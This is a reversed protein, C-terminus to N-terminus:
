MMVSIGINVQEVDPGTGKRFISQPYYSASIAFSRYGLNVTYGYHFNRLDINSRKKFKGKYEPHSSKVKTHAGMRLGGVVGGNVFFKGERGFRFEALLPINIYSTTLKSKSLDIGNDIYSYDAVTKGDEMKLGIDNRFRFNNFELGIGTFLNFPGASVISMDFLNIAVGVSRESQVMYSADAPLSLQGLGGILGNYSLTIGSWHGSMNPFSRKTRKASISHDYIYNSADDSAKGISFTADKVVDITTKRADNIAEFTTKRAQTNTDASRKTTKGGPIFFEERTGEPTETVQASAGFLTMVLVAATLYYRNKM